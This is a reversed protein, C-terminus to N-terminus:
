KIGYLKFTGKSINGSSMLLQIANVNATSKRMGAGIVHIINASDGSKAYTMEWSFKTQDIGLPNGIKIIGFAEDGAVNSLDLFSDSQNLVIAVGSAPNTAGQHSTSDSTIGNVGSAYQLISSDYTIGNDTSTRIYLDTADTVPLLDYFRIEYIDYTSTILSEFKIDVSNSAIQTNLLVIDANSPLNILQSGDVAPLKATADLQVMNNATVGANEIASSGLGLNTRATPSDALDNLNNAPDLTNATAPVDLATRAAAATASNTGGQAIPIPVAFDGNASLKKSFFWLKSNISM